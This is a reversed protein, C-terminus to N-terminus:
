RSGGETTPPTFLHAYERVSRGWDLLVCPTDGAVWADHGPEIEYADGARLDVPQGDNPEVHLVGALVYGVHHHPCSQTGTLPRVDNSWRWGPQFTALAVPEGAVEVLRENGNPFRATEAPRDFSRAFAGM